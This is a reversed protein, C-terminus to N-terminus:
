PARSSISRNASRCRGIPLSVSGSAAATAAAPLASMRTTRACSTCGIACASRWATTALTTSSPSTVRRVAAWAVARAATRLRASASRTPCVSSTRSRCTSTARRATSPCRPSWTAEPPSARGCRSPPSGSWKAHCASWGSPIGRTSAARCFTSTRTSACPSLFTTSCGRARMPRGRWRTRRATTLSAPTMSTAISPTSSSSLRPRASTRPAAHTQWSSRM